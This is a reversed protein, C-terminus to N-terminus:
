GNAPRRGVKNPDGDGQEGGLELSDRGAQELRWAEWGRPGPHFFAGPELGEPLYRQAVWGGPFDHPYLYHGYGESGPRHRDRLHSPVERLPGQRVEALAADIGAEAALNEDVYKLIKAHPSPSAGVKLTVVGSADAGNTSDAKDANSSCASLGLALAAAASAALIQRFNRM